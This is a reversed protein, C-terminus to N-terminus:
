DPNRRSKYKVNYVVSFITGHINDKVWYMCLACGQQVCLCFSSYDVSTAATCDRYFTSRFYSTEKYQVHRVYYETGSNVLVLKIHVM